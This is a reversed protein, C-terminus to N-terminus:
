PLMDTLSHPAVGDLISSCAQRGCLSRVDGTSAVGLRTRGWGTARMSLQDKNIGIADRLIPGHTLLPVILRVMVPVRHGAM